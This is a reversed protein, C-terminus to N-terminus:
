AMAHIDEPNIPTCSYINKENLKGQRSYKKPEEGGGGLLNELPGDRIILSIVSVPTLLATRTIPTDTIALHGCPSLQSYKTFLLLLLLLLLIVNFVKWLGKKLLTISKITVPIEKWSRWRLM